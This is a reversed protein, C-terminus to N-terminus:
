HKHKFIRQRMAMYASAKTLEGILITVGVYTIGIALCRFIPLLNVVAISVLITPIAAVLPLWLVRLSMMFLDRIHLNLFRRRCYISYVLISFMVGLAQTWAIWLLGHKYFLMLLTLQVAVEFFGMNRVFTTKDYVKCVTQYFSRVCILFEAVCLIRCVPIADLWKSGYLLEIGPAVILLMFMLLLGNIGLITALMNNILSRQKDKDEENSAVVFFPFNVSSDSVQFPVNALKAGQYYVGTVSASPYFRGLMFTNVNKGILTALYSLMLHVGYSFMEKFSKISFDIKPLWRTAITYYLFFVFSILIQTCILAKYGYGNAAAIIALISVTITAGVRVLCMKKMQLEKRLRTEQVYSLTQFFFCVALIRMIGILEEHGFFSAVLPATFFFILGFILGFTANFVFVTSYDRKSPHVKHILGDSLGCGSLDQAIAIFITIMALLGFDAKTLM